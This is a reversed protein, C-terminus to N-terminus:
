SIQFIFFHLSWLFPPFSVCKKITPDKWLGKDCAVFHHRVVCCDFWLNWFHHKRPKSWVLGVCIILAGHYIPCSTHWSMINEDVWRLLLKYYSNLCAYSCLVFSTRVVLHFILMLAFYWFWSFFQIHVFTFGLNGQVNDRKCTNYSYHVNRLLNSICNSYQIHWTGASFLLFYMKSWVGCLFLYCWIQPWEIFYHVKCQQAFM